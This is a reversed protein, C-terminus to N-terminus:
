MEIEVNNLFVRALKVYQLFIDIKHDFQNSPPYPFYETQMPNVTTITGVLHTGDITPSKTFTQRQVVGFKDRISMELNLALVRSNNIPVGSLNFLTSRELNVPIISHNGPYSGYSTRNQYQTPTMQANSSADNQAALTYTNVKYEKLKPNKNAANQGIDMKLTKNETLTPETVQYFGTALASRSFGVDSNFYGTGHLHNTEMAKKDNALLRGDAGFLAGGLNDVPDVLSTSYVPQLLQSYGDGGHGRVLPIEGEVFHDLTVSTENAKNAYKGFLELSQVYAERINDFSRPAFSTVNAAYPLPADVAAYEVYPVDAIHPNQKVKSKNYAISPQQPFYLSGLRWQYSTCLWEDAAFSDRLESGIQNADRVRGFARLARSCAQRVEVHQTVDHQGKINHITNNTDAYVIELGSTAPM